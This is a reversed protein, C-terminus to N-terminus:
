TPRKEPKRGRRKTGLNEIVARIRAEYPILDIKAPNFPPLQPEPENLETLLKRCLKLDYWIIYPPGDAWALPYARHVLVGAQERDGLALWTEAAVLPFRPNRGNWIEAAEAIVERAESTHGLRALALGRLGQYSPAPEGTRQTITLAQDIAELAIAPNSRALEWEARLAALRHQESLNRGNVSVRYAHNLDEDTM